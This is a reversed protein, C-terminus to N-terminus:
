KPKGRREESLTKVEHDGAVLPRLYRVEEIGKVEYYEIVFSLAEPLSKLGEAKQIRRLSGENDPSLNINVCAKWQSKDLRRSRAKAIAEQMRILDNRKGKSKTLLPSKLKRYLQTVNRKIKDALDKKIRAGNKLGRLEAYLKAFRRQMKMLEPDDLSVLAKVIGELFPKLEKKTDNKWVILGLLRDKEEKLSPSTM